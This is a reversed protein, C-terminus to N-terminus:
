DYPRAGYLNTDITEQIQARHEDLEEYVEARFQDMYDKVREDSNKEILYKVREKLHPPIHDLEDDTDPGGRKGKPDM